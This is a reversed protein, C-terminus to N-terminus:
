TRNYMDEQLVMYCCLQQRSVMEAQRALRKFISNLLEMYELTSSMAYDIGMSFATTAVVM